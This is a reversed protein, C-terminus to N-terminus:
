EVVEYVYTVVEKRQVKVFDCKYASKGNAGLRENWSIITNDDPYEQKWLGQLELPVQVFDNGDWVDEARVEIVYCTQAIGKRMEVFAEEVFYIAPTVLEIQETTLKQM